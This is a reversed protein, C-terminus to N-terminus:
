TGTKFGKNFEIRSQTTTIEYSAFGKILSNAIFSGTGTIKLKAGASGTIESSIVCNDSALINWDGSTYTCTDAGAQTVFSQNRSLYVGYGGSEAGIFLTGNIPNFSVDLIDNTTASGIWNNTDTDSLNTTVNASKNYFFYQGTTCGIYAGGTTNDFTVDNCSLVGLNLGNSSNTLSQTVNTSSNYYGFDGGAGVLYAGCNITDAAIGLVNSNFFGGVDTSSLNISSNTTRNYWGFRGSNSAIWLKKCVPDYSLDNIGTGLGIWDEIDTDTLNETYNRYKEYIYLEEGRITYANSNEDVALANMTIATNFRVSSSSVRLDHTINTSRNYYGFEGQAGVLYAGIGKSDYAIQSVSQTSWFNGVDTLGLDRSVNTTYNYYFWKGNGAAFYAGGEDFDVSVGNVGQSGVFNATPSNDTGNLELTVNINSELPLTANLAAVLGLFMLALIIIRKMKSRLM